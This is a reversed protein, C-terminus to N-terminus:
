MEKMSAREIEYVTDTILKPTVRNMMYMISDNCMSTPVCVHMAEGLYEADDDDDSNSEIEVGALIANM